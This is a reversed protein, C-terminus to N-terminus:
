HLSGTYTSADFSLTGNLGVLDGTGGVVVGTGEFSTLESCDASVNGSFRLRWTLTGSGVGAITGTFIETGEGHYRGTKCDLLPKDDTSSSGVLTGFFGTVFGTTECSVLYPGLLRCTTTGLDLTSSTGSLEIEGSKATATPQTVILACAFMRAAIAVVRTM